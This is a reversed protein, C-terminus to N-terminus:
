EYPEGKRRAQWWSSHWTARREWRNQRRVPAGPRGARGTVMPRAPAPCIPVSMTTATVSIGPTRIPAMESTRPWAASSAASSAPWSRSVRDDGGLRRAIDVARDLAAVDGDGVVEMRQARGAADVDDDVGGAIGVDARQDREFRHLRVLVDDHQVDFGVDGDAAEELLLGPPLPDDVGASGAVLRGARQLQDAEGLRHAEVDDGGALALVVRQLEVRHRGLVLRFGVCRLM